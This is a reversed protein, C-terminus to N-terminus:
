EQKLGVKGAKRLGVAGVLGCLIMFGFMTWFSAKYGELLAETPEEDKHQKTIITSVVQMIALGMANGFQGAANFVSGAVAQKDEPFTETVVILGVTFLVDVSFPMLAQAFFASTWYTWAPNTLAMLLPSIATLVSTTVILWIAPIKHVVLGTTFNLAVGVVVSPLIRIAADLASLHQVEQFFLSTFLELSNIVANSLAITICISTFAHNGWFSNPILAPKEKKVQLHMWGVFLPLAVLSLSLLVISSAEKIRYVDTSIVALFYYLLAMFASALLTGLWDVKIAVSRLVDQLTGLPESKPLSWLGIATLALNIAGYLYWGSRWGATEVLVGGLVLGFSFGLPQSLGLCAFSLNRGRGRPLTKTVLAVSSSLHLALAVGQLARLAVLEEGRQVFGCALMFIGSLVCGILDVSRPGLVDALAGALLLTSATALGQVSSPWFALSPPLNLDSTMQPLGVIILGNSASCAFNVGSLQFTVAIKQLRSATPANDSPPDNNTTTIQAESAAGTVAHPMVPMAEVLLTETQTAM